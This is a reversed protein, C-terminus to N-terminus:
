RRNNKLINCCNITKELKDKQVYQKYRRRWKKIDTIYLVIKNNLSNISNKTKIVETGKILWIHKPNLDKRNDFALLLFYDAIKNKKIHFSWCKNKNNNRLCSSKVDIKYNHSCIFDFGSNNKPMRKVNKFVKSLVREAIVIGLYLSSKKNEYMSKNRGSKHNMVRHYEAYDKYGKSQALKNQYESGGHGHAKKYEYLSNYGNNKAVYTLYQSNTIEKDVLQKWMSNM